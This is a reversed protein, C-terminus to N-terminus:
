PGASSSRAACRAGCGRGRSACRRRLPHRSTRPLRGASAGGRRRGPSPRAARCRRPRCRACPPARTTRAVLGAQQVGVGRLLVDREREPEVAGRRESRAAARLGSARRGCPGARRARRASACRPADGRVLADIVLVQHRDGVHDAVDGARHLARDVRDQLEAGLHVLEARGGAVGDLLM